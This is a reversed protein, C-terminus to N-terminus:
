EKGLMRAYRISLIKSLACLLVTLLIGIGIFNSGTFWESINMEYHFGAWIYACLTIAATLILSCNSFGRRSKYGRIFYWNSLSLMYGTVPVVLNLAWFGNMIGSPTRSELAVGLTILLFSFFLSVSQLLSAKRDNIRSLTKPAQAEVAIKSPTKMDEFIKRCAECDKIHEEVIEKSEESCCGDIYLPLLDRVTNCNM